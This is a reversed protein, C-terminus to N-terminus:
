AACRRAGSVAAAHLVRGAQAAEIPVLLELRGAAPCVAYCPLM